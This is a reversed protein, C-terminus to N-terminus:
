RTTLDAISRKGSTAGFPGGTERLVNQRALEIALRIRADDDPYPRHFDVATAAWDPNTIRVESTPM